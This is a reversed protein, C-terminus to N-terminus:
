YRFLSYIKRNTKETHLRSRQQGVFIQTEFLFISSNVDEDKVWLYMTKNKTNLESMCLIGTDNDTKM